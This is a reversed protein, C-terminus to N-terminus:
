ALLGCCLVADRRRMQLRRNDVKKNWYCSSSCASSNPGKETSDHLTTYGPSTAKVM